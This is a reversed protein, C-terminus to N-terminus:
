FKGKFKEWNKIVWTCPDVWGNKTNRVENSYPKCYSLLYIAVGKYFPINHREWRNRYSSCKDGHAAIIGANDKFSVGCHKFFDPLNQELWAYHNEVKNM